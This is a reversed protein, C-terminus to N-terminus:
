SNSVRIQGLKKYLNKAIMFYFFNSMFFNVFDKKDLSKKVGFKEQGFIM